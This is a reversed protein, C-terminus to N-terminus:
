AHHRGVAAFGLPLGRVGHDALCDYPEAAQRLGASVLNEASSHSQQCNDGPWLLSGGPTRQPKM